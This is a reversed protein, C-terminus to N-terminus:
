TLLASGFIIRLTLGSSLCMVLILPKSSVITLHPWKEPLVRTRKFTKGLLMFAICFISSCERFCFYHLTPSAIVTKWANKKKLHHYIELISFLYIFFSHNQLNETTLFPFFFFFLLFRWFGIHSKWQAVLCIPYISWRWIVM